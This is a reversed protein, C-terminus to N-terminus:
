EGVNDDGEEFFMNRLKNNLGNYLDTQEALAKGAQMKGAGLFKDGDYYNSGRKELLGEHVAVELLDSNSDIGEGFIIDFDALKFPPAVKNKVIKARCQNGVLNGSAKVSGIRNLDIRVSSYYKLAKGGPTDKNSGYSMAGIKQRMQNIFVLSTNHQHVIPTIKRLGTSMLRASGAINHDSIDGEIEKKSALAAVSDIVILDVKGTRVMVEIVEFVQEGWDPQVLYTEGMKVGIREAYRPDVAHEVDIYIAIGGERQVNAVAHLALTTKGGGEVGYIESVRGRPIGGVGLARDLSISGTPIVDCRVIGEEAKRILNEGHNKHLTKIAEQIPDGGDDKTNKPM